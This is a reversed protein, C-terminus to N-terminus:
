SITHGRHTSVPCVFGHSGADVFHRSGTDVFDRSLVVVGAHLAVEAGGRGGAASLVVVVDGHVGDIDLLQVDGLVGCGREESEVKGAVGEGARDDGRPPFALLAVVVGPRPCASDAGSDRRGTRCRGPRSGRLGRGTTSASRTRPIGCRWNSRASGARIQSSNASIAVSGIVMGIGNRVGVAACTKGNIFEENEWAVGDLMVTRLHEELEARDTITARQLPPMGHAELYQERQGESMGALMIKGFATAHAAEHFGFTM